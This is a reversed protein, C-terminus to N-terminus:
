DCLRLERGLSVAQTRNKAGLKAYLNSIHRKVTPMSIVLKDAIDQNTFGAEILKLVELERLTLPEILLQAPPLQTASFRGLASLLEPAYGQGIRHSKAQYLLKAMPEGEDLFVRTYGEPQALSLARELVALAQAGDKKGQLALAQLILIEIVRRMQKTAEELKLLRASLALAADHDGQALRLRLLLLYEPVRLYPIEAERTTSDITVDLQQLLHVARELNGQAIWWSASALRVWKAQRPSIHQEGVLREAARMAEQAKELNGRARELWALMVYGKALLNANGWQRCFGICQHVYQDAEELQNWEYSIRGLGAYLRDALPLKQGDARTAMQLTESYIRAAKHPEGQERLVDALNSNAVMMMYINGAARSIQAAEVYAGRANELNGSMWSADGLISTAVGRISCSFANSDPLYGLAGQAYDAARQSEGQLNALYARVAAISGLMIKVESTAQLPSFLGEAMRLTPEVQELHGTLALAWAKLIALWPHTQAYSEVAEVWKLLTFGEGSMLLSCGHQEVLQAARAQDGAMLAHHIAEPIIANQEYWHSARRHLAPIQHPYLRELYLNLVDAFLHHFRYWQRRDDLPVIFLNMQELAELMAQGTAPETGEIGVVAECLAACMSSLISTQLLFSRVREPQLKLAEETLYDMIYYHSGTFASIFSHIDKCGQSAIAALQLGAIWGETRAELAAVDDASFRLGMVENLFVAVEENTFRLQEARIEVLQGRGRWRSLPLPPDTRSLLALHMQPPAHELLYTIIELVPQAHVAHFDDLVLVFPAASGAIENTIISLLSDSQAPQLGQLVGMLDPQIAPVIKQLATLLYQLFRKPDNDGEDLSIWASLVEADQLWSSVITTKGYGAPASVLILAKDLGTNIREVLRARKVRNSRPPPVFLKTMLLPERQEPFSPNIQAGGEIAEPGARSM